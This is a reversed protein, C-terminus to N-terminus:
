KQNQLVRKVAERHIPTQWIYCKGIGIELDREPPPENVWATPDRDFVEVVLNLEVLRDVLTPADRIRRLLVDPDDLAEA